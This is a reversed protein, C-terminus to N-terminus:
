SPTPPPGIDQMVKASDYNVQIRQIKSNSITFLDVAEFAVEKGTKLTAEFFIEAAVGCDDSFYLRKIHDKGRAYKMFVGQYFSRINEKGVIPESLPYHLSAHEDFLRMLEDLRMEDVAKFYALVVPESDRTIM